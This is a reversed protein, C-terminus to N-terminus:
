VSGEETSYGDSDQQGGDFLWRQRGGLRRPECGGEGHKADIKDNREVVSDGFRGPGIGHAGQDLEIHEKASHGEHKATWVGM